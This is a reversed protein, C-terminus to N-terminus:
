LKYLAILFKTPQMNNHPDGGGSSEAIMSDNNVGPGMGLPEIIDGDPSSSDASWHAYTDGSAASDFKVNHTHPGNEAGTLTHTEEGVTTGQNRQSIGFDVPLIGVGTSDATAVGLVRGRLSQDVLEWGPNRLRADAANASLVFKVDGPVGAVTRWLSREWWILCSIDTDYYQEFDL